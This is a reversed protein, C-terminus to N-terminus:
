SLREGIVEPYEPFYREIVPLEFSSLIASRPERELLFRFSERLLREADAGEGYRDLHDGTVTVRHESSGSEDRVRVDYQDGGAHAVDIQPM